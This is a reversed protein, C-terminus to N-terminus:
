KLLMLMVDDISSKEIVLDRYNDLYFQRENTLLMKCYVDQQEALIYQRDLKQYQEKSVKLIAYSSLLVDTDEHLIIKGNKMFYLDDCLGELDSSYHSSILIGKAEGQMYARIENLLENRTIADLGVTPEDLLLLSANHCLAALLKLKAKMGTSFKKLEQKLPLKYIECKKLFLEKEFCPYMNNLINAIQTINLMMSFTNEAMVTGIKQKDAASLRKQTKGFREITGSDTQILDLIAKITTSKGAGNAGILGSIKGEEIQMSVDLSFTDYTKQVHKLRLLM